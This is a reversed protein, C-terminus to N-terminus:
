STSTARGVYAPLEICFTAGPGRPRLFIRGGHAEVIRRAIFLGLGRGARVTEALRGRAFPDFILHREAAGIGPGRDSVCVRAAGSQLKVSVRVSSQPPSYALANRVLNAVAVRLQGVDARVRVVGPARVTVRDEGFELRCSAIAEDVIRVLDCVRLRLTGRGSSWDLLPDVLDALQQLELKTRRLLERDGPADEASLVRDLAARAGVLPGRLEHATWAMGLDLNENRLKAWGVDRVREIAAELLEASRELFERQGSPVNAALLVSEGSQLSQVDRCGLVGAFAAALPRAGASGSGAHVREGARRLEARKRTGVGSAAALFWGIGSRDPAFGAVPARLHRGSAEVTTRIASVPTRVRLLEGALQMSADRARAVGEAEEKDLLSQLFAASQDVVTGLVDQRAEIAHRPAVVEVVGLPGDRGVLPLIALASGPPERLLLV